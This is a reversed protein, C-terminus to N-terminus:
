LTSEAQDSQLRQYNKNNKQLKDKNVEKKNLSKNHCLKLFHGVSFAWGLSKWHIYACFLKPSCWEQDSSDTYDLSNRPVQIYVFSIKISRISALNKDDAFLIETCEKESTDVEPPKICSSVGHLVAPVSKFNLTQPPLRNTGVALETPPETQEEM